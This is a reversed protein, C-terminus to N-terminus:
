SASLEPSATGDVSASNSAAKSRPRARAFFRLCAATHFADPTRQEQLVRVFSCIIQEGLRSLRNRQMPSIFQLARQIQNSFEGFDTSEAGIKGDFVDSAKLKSIKGIPDNKITYCVVLDFKQADLVTHHM